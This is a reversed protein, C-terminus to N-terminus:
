TAVAEATSRLWHAFERATSPRRTRERALVKGFLDV